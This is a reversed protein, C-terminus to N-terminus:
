KFKSVLSTTFDPISFTPGVEAWYNSVVHKVQKYNSVVADCAPVLDAKKYILPYGPLLKRVWPEDLFVGVAGSALLELYYIGFSESKSTCLFGGYRKLTGAYEKRDPQQTMVDYHELEKAYRERNSRKHNMLIVDMQLTQGRLAILKVLEETCAAHLRFNKHIENLRNYPTLWRLPDNTDDDTFEEGVGYNIQILKHAHQKRFAPSFVNAVGAQLAEYLQPSHAVIKNEKLASLMGTMEPFLYEGPNTTFVTVLDRFHLFRKSKLLPLIKTPQLNIVNAGSFKESTTTVLEATFGQKKLEKTIYEGMHYLSGYQNDETYVLYKM